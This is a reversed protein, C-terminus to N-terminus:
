KLQRDEQLDLTDFYVKPITIQRQNSIKVKKIYTM